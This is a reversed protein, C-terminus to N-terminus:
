PVIQPRKKETVETVFNGRCHCDGLRLEGSRVCSCINKKDRLECKVPAPV